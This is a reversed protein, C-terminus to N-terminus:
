YSRKQKFPLSFLSFLYWHGAADVSSLLKPPSLFDGMSIQQFRDLLFFSPVSFFLKMKSQDSCVLLGCYKVLFVVSFLQLTKLSLFVLNDFVEQVSAILWRLREPM